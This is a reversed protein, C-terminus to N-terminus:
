GSDYSGGSRVCLKCNRNDIILQAQMKERPAFGNAGRKRSLGNLSEELDFFTDGALPRLGTRVVVGNSRSTGNGNTTSM